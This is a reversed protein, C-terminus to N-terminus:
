KRRGFKRAVLRSRRNFRSFPSIRRRRTTLPKRTPGARRKNFSDPAAQTPTRNSLLKKTAAIRRKDFSDFVAKQTKSLNPNINAKGTLGARRGGRRTTPRKPDVSMRPPQKVRTTPAKLRRRGTTTARKPTGGSHGVPPRKVKRVPRRLM